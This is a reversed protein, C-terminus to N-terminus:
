DCAWNSTIKKGAGPAPSLSLGYSMAVHHKVTPEFELLYEADKGFYRARDIHLAIPADDVVIDVEREALARYLDNNSESVLTPVCRM